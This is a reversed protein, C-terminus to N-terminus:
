MSTILRIHDNKYQAIFLVSSGFRIGLATCHKTKSVNEELHRVVIIILRRM